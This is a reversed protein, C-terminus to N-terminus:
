PVYLTQTGSSRQASIEALDAKSIGVLVSQGAMTGVVVLMAFQQMSPVHACSLTSACTVHSGKSLCSMAIGQEEGSAGVPLGSLGPQIRCQKCFMGPKEKARAGGSERGSQVTSIGLVVATAASDIILFIGHGLSVCAAPAATLGLRCTQQM